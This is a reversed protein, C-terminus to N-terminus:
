EKWPMLKREAADIIKWGRVVVVLLKTSKKEMLKILKRYQNFRKNTNM